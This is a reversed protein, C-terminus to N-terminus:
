SVVEADTAFAELSALLWGCLMEAMQLQAQDSAIFDSRIELMVNALGNRMGHRNLTYTVGDEPSYPENRKVLYDSHGAACALMLDALRRDSDHLIGIEVKRREGFFVPTFSHVTVLITARGAMARANLQQSVMDHFPDYIAVSRREREADDIAENGPVSTRESIAQIAKPSHSPRNCDIVLRSYRQLILTSDLEQSMRRSLAEAGIDWAIHATLDGATLGLTGLSKPIVRGAHECVLVVPSMGGDNVVEVPGPEDGQLM